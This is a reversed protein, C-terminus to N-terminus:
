NSSVSNPNKCGVCKCNVCAKGEKYCACRQGLCTLDGPRRGENKKAGSGCRCHHEKQKVKKRFKDGLSQCDVLGEASYGEQILQLFTIPGNISSVQLSSWKSVMGKAELHKCLNVFGAAIFNLDSNLEFGNHSAQFAQKCTVCNYNM